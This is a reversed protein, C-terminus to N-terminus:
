TYILLPEETVFINSISKTISLFMQTSVGSNKGIFWRVDFLYTKCLFNFIKKKIDIEIYTSNQKSGTYRNLRNNLYALTNMWM